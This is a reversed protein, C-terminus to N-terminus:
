AVVGPRGRGYWWGIVGGVVTMMITVVVVDILHGTMTHIHTTGHATLNGALGMLLGVIMGVTAGSGFTVTNAKHLIYAMLFGYFLNGLILHLWGFEEMSRSIGAMTHQDFLSSFAMGYLLYGLFFVVVGGIIGGVLVRNNM